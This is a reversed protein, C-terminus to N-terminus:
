AIFLRAAFIQFDCLSRRDGDSALMIAARKISSRGECLRRWELGRQAPAAVPLNVNQITAQITKIDITMEPLLMCFNALSKLGETVLTLIATCSCVALRDGWPIPRVLIQRVRGTTDDRFEVDDNMRVFHDAIEDRGLVHARGVEEARESRRHSTHQRQREGEVMADHGAAFGSAEQDRELRLKLQHRSGVTKRTSWFLTKRSVWAM